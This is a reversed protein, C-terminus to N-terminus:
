EARSEAIEGVLVAGLDITCISVVASISISRSTCDVKWAICTSEGVAEGDGM